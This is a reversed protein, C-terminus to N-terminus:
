VMFCVGLGEVCGNYVAPWAFPWVPSIHLGGSIRDMTQQKRVVVGVVSVSFVQVDVGDARKGEVLAADEGEFM